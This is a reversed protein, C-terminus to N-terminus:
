YSLCVRKVIKLRSCIGVTQRRTYIKLLVFAVHIIRPIIKSSIPPIKHSNIFKCSFNTPTEQYSGSGNTKIDAQWSFTLKLCWLMFLLFLFLCMIPYHLMCILCAWALAFPDLYGRITGCLLAFPHIPLVLSLTSYLFFRLTVWSLDSSEVIKFQDSVRYLTLM